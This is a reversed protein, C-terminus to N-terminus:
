PGYDTRYGTLTISEGSTHTVTVDVRLSSAAAIGNLATGAVSVSVTYASLGLTTGNPLQPEESLGNYDDVDDFNARAGEGDANPDNFRKSLIEEMYSEAVAVAQERILPDSSGAVTNTYALLVGTVALSVLVISIVLEVFTFGRQQRFTTM